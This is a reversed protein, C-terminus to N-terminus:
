EGRINFERWFERFKGVNSVTSLLFAFRRSIMIREEKEEDHVVAEHVTSVRREEVTEKDSERFGCPEGKMEGIFAVVNVRM